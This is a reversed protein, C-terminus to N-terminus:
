GLGGDLGIEAPSKVFGYSHLLTVYFEPWGTHVHGRLGVIKALPYGAKGVVRDQNDTIQEKVLVQEPLRRPQRPLRRNGHELERATCDHGATCGVRRLVDAGQQGMCRSAPDYASIGSCSLQAGFEITCPDARRSDDGIGAPGRRDLRAKNSLSGQAERLLEGTEVTNLTLFYGPLDFCLQGRSQLTKNRKYVCNEYRVVLRSRCAAIDHLLRELNRPFM